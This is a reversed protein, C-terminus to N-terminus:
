GVQPEGRFLRFNFEEPPDDLRRSWAIRNGAGSVHVLEDRTTGRTLVTTEATEPDFIVIEMDGPPDGSASRNAAGVIRGDPLVSTSSTCYGGLPVPESITRTALDVRAVACETRAVRVTIVLAGDVVGVVEDLRDPLTPSPEDARANAELMVLRDDVQGVIRGEGSPLRIFRSERIARIPLATERYWISWGGRRLSALISQGDPSPQHFPVREEPELLWRTGFSGDEVRVSVLAPVNRAFLAASAWAGDPSTAALTYFHGVSLLTRPEDPRAVDVVLLSEPPELWETRASDLRYVPVRYDQQVILQAGDHSIGVLSWPRSPDGVCTIDEDASTRTAEERGARRFEEWAEVRATRSSVLDYSERLTLAHTMRETDLTTDPDLVLQLAPTQYLLDVAAPALAAFWTDRLGRAVEEPTTNEYTFEAAESRVEGEETPVAHVSLQARYLQFDRVVGPRQAEVSLDLLLTTGATQALARRRAEAYAGELDDAQVPNADEVADFGFTQLRALFDRRIGADFDPDVSGRLMVLVKVPDTSPGRSVFYWAAGIGGLVVVAFLMAIWKGAGTGPIKTLDVDESKPDTM